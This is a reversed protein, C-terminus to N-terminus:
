PVPRLGEKVADGVASSHDLVMEEGGVGYALGNETASGGARFAADKDDGDHGEDAYDNEEGQGASMM